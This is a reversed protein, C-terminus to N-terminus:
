ANFQLCSPASRVMSNGLLTSEEGAYARFNARCGFYYTPLAPFLSRSDIEDRSNSCFNAYLLFFMMPGCGTAGYADRVRSLRVGNKDNAIYVLVAALLATLGFLVVLDGGIEALGGGWQTIEVIPALVPTKVGRPEIHM